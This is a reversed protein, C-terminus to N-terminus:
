PNVVTATLLVHKGSSLGRRRQRKRPPNEGFHPAIQVIRTVVSQSDSCLVSPATLASHARFLSTSFHSIVVPRRFGVLQTSPRVSTFAFLSEIYLWALAFTDDARGSM